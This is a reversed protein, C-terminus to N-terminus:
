PQTHRTKRLAKLKSVNFWKKKDETYPFPKKILSGNEKEKEKKKVKVKVDKSMSIQHTFYYFGNKSGMYFTGRWMASGAGRQGSILEKLEDKSTEEVKRNGTCSSFFVVALISVIIVFNMKTLAKMKM